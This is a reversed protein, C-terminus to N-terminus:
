DWGLSKWWGLDSSIVVRISNRIEAWPNKLGLTKSVGIGLGLTNSVGFGLGLTNSVGIGLGLKKRVWARTIGLGLKKSVWARTM